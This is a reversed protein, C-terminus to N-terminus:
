AHSGEVAPTTADIRDVLWPLADAFATSAFQWSHFGVTKHVSCSIAVKQAADCLNDAAAEAEPGQPGMEDRGGLGEGGSHHGGSWSDKMVAEANAPKITAAFYGSVGEYPGHKAMVTRPDFADYAARDGGYLREVTQAETGSVPGADGGIDVFNSFLDPHMVALDIACTGGMSWGVVGWNAAAASAGFTSIVYPRVDETLHDASNGRPGNVCETDNNFSGGTDVFVFIPLQGGHAADYGEVTPMFNGSRIWDAPTNFEGGIMMVVPLAPPTDGAFWAPPLYVYESRHTFGSATDSIDVKVLKGTTPATNRLSPLDSAQVENPLPGATLAGWASQLSPYYGVWGNLAMASTLLTLPVALVSIIRRWWRASRWGVVGVAVALGFVAIWVWLAFPAPDSALGQDNMYSRAALAVLVGVAACMPLWVLRWRRTRWGIAVILVVVVVIEITLPLWGELLSIGNRAALLDKPLEVPSPTPTPTPSPPM